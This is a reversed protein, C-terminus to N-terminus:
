WGQIHPHLLNPDPELVPLELYSPFQISHYVRHKAIAFDSAKATYIDTFVQPNRDMLPFWSSQVQVMLRHGKRFDHCIDNLVWEVTTPQGPAFPEPKEMSNRFKGRMVEGRVLQQYGALDTKPNEPYEDIVKVVWDADTGTTSVSLHARIPGAVVLDQELASTRYTLVDKRSAVFRQDADMYERPMTIDMGEFSPVPKAPDSIFEDPKEDTFPTAFGLQGSAHFHVQVKQAESPPWADMRLWQNAGTEFVWAKPLHPDPAEKLYHTFFPFEVEDQFFDSTRSGFSIAGLDEGSDNEWAGHYWPGMVLSLRTNPSQSLVARHAQLTGYLNEADFWGGVLLVAPKIDKLHPRLDRAKWYSDYIGHALVENWFPIGGKFYRENVNSLPGLGLYFSYGNSTRYGFSPSKKTTPQPRPQGFWSIFNFLHPLWLAGNRHFDDGAFWDMIPAQPSTAVLAPHADIMGAAAYFGPYSIGWQGVKGNNKPVHALLWEITDFTDTSEDIDSASQKVELHPTMEVFDGESMYRGRVDQYVFIFKDEAFPESPGLYEAFRNLGYPGVGYPTRKLLIPYLGDTKPAYISTFLRKGDRMPIMVELKTYNKRVWDRGQAFLSGRALGLCLLWTLLIRISIM